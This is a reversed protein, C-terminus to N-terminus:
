FHDRGIFLNYFRILLWKVVPQAASIIIILAILSFFYDNFKVANMDITKNPHYYHTIFSVIQRPNFM